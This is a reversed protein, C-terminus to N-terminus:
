PSLQDSKLCRRIFICVAGGMFDDKWLLPDLSAEPDLIQQLHLPLWSLFSGAPWLHCLTDDIIIVM